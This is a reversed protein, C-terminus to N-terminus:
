GARLHQMYRWVSVAEFPGSTTQTRPGQKTVAKHFSVSDYITTHGYHLCIMAWKLYFTGYSSVATLLHVSENQRM